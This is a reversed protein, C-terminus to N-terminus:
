VGSVAEGVKFTSKLESKLNVLPTPKMDIKEDLTNAYDSM